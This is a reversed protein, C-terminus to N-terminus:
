DRERDGTQLCGPNHEEKQGYKEEHLALIQDVKLKGEVLHLQRREVQIGVWLLSDRIAVSARRSDNEWDNIHRRITEYNVGLQRSIEAKTNEEKLLLQVDVMRILAKENRNM